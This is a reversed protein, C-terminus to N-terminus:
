PMKILQAVANTSSYRHVNLIYNEGVTLTVESDIMALNTGATLTWPGVGTVTLYYECHGGTAAGAATTPVALTFDGTVTMTKFHELDLDPTVTAAYSDAEVDTTYGVTINRTIDKHVYNTHDDDSLGTLAGHDTVGGGGVGGGTVVAVQANNSPASGQGEVTTLPLTYVDSLLTPTGIIASVFQTADGQIQVYVINGAVLANLFPSVDTGTDNVKHIYLETADDITTDDFQLQGTSPTSTTATRYRWLGLGSFNGGGTSVDPMMRLATDTDTTLLLDALRTLFKLAM